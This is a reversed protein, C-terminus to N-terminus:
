LLGKITALRLAEKKSGVHSRMDGRNAGIERCTKLFNFKRQILAVIYYHQKFDFVVTNMSTKM